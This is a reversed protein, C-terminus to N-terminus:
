QPILPIDQSPAREDTLVTGGSTLRLGAKVPYQQQNITLQHNGCAQDSVIYRHGDVRLELVDYPVHFMDGRSRNYHRLVYQGTKGEVLLSTLNGFQFAKSDTFTGQEVAVDVVLVSDIFAFGAYVLPPILFAIWCGALVRQKAQRLQQIGFFLGLLGCLVSITLGVPSMLALFINGGTVRILAVTMMGSMVLSLIFSRPTVPLTIRSGPSALARGCMRICAFLALLTVTLVAMLLWGGFILIAILGTM